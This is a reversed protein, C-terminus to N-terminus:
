ELHSRFSWSYHNCFRQYVSWIRYVWYSRWTNLQRLIYCVELPLQLWRFLQFTRTVFSYIRGSDGIFFSNPNSLKLFPARCQFWFVQNFFIHGAIDGAISLHHWANVSARYFQHGANTGARQSRHEANVGIVRPKVLYSVPVIESWCRPDTTKEESAFQTTVLIM